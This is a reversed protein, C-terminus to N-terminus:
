FQCHGYTVIDLELDYNFDCQGKYYIFKYHATPEMIWSFYEVSEWNSPIKDENNAVLYQDFKAIAQTSPQVNRVDCTAYAYNSIALLVLTFISFTKM